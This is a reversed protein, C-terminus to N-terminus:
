LARRAKILAERSLSPTGRYYSHSILTFVEYSRTPKTLRTGPKPVNSRKSFM